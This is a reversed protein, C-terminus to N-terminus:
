YWINLSLNNPLNKTSLVLEWSDMVPQVRKARYRGRAWKVQKALRKERLVHNAESFSQLTLM